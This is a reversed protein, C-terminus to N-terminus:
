WPPSTIEIFLYGASVGHATSHNPPRAAIVSRHGNRGFHQDTVFVITKTVVPQSARPARITLALSTKTVCMRQTM